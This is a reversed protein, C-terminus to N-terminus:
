APRAGMAQMLMAALDEAAVDQRGGAAAGRGWIAYDSRRDKADPAHFPGTLSPQHDGYFLLWGDRGQAEIADRLIPIMADTSRLHRLWRGAAAADPLARWDAPLDAPAIDDHEADWPGHNEMTIAFLLIKPGHARILRAAEEAVAVDSVYPGARAAGAFGEIGVFQDFGLLPMVRDRYYFDANYPHICITTYGARRAQAALSPLPVRAFREYPNFRDLGINGTGLGTLMALESRITNAGWCPVALRGHAVGERRLAAFHPLHEALDPHLRAADVFSEGQILVIPGADAPIDPWARAQAASQRALREVRALMAHILCAGLLGFRRADSVPERSPALSAYYRSLRAAIPRWTPVVFCARGIALAALALLVATGLGMGWLPPEARVLAAVLALSVLAGGVMRGTGVFALYLRPHRVVEFLEARDSFVVPEGLIARKVRDAVGLGIGLSMVGLGALIPRATPLLFLAFGALYPFLDALMAGFPRACLPAGVLRRLGAWTALTIGLGFLIQLM